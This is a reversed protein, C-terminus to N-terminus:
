VWNLLRQIPHPRVNEFTSWLLIITRELEADSDWWCHLYSEVLGISGQNIIRVFTNPNHVNIRVTQKSYTSIPDEDETAGMNIIIGHRRAGM